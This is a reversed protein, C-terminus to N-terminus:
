HFVGFISCIFPMIFHRVSYEADELDGVLVKLTPTLFRQSTELTRVLDFDPPRKDTLDKPIELM